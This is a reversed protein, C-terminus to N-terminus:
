RRAPARAGERLEEVLDKVSQRPVDFSEIPAGEAMVARLEGLPRSELWCRIIAWALPRVVVAVPGRGARSLARALAHLVRGRAEEVSEGEPATVGTPDDRWQCYSKSFRDTLESELLGQWLGLDMEGLGAVKRRKAGAHEAVLKATTVSAEDPGSLVQAVPQGNLRAIIAAVEARGAGTMPLDTEGQLRGVEDWETRGSRVLLLQIDTPRPM